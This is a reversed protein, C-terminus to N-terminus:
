CLSVELISSDSLCQWFAGTAISATLSEVSILLIEAVTVVISIM